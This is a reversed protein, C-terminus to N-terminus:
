SREVALLMENSFPPTNLTDFGHLRWGRRDNAERPTLDHGGSSSDVFISVTGKSVGVMSDSNSFSGQINGCDFILTVFSSSFVADEM